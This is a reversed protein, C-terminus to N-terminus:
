QYCSTLVSFKYELLLGLNPIAELTAANTVANVHLDILSLMLDIFSIYQGHVAHIM